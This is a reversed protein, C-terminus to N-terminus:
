NLATKLRAFDKKWRLQYAERDFVVVVMLTQGYITFKSFNMKESDSLFNNNTNDRIIVKM